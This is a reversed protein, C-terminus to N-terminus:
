RRRTRSSPRRGPHFSRASPQPRPCRPLRDGTASDVILIAGGGAPERMWSSPSRKTTRKRGRREIGIDAGVLQRVLEEELHETDIVLEHGLCGTLAHQLNKRGRGILEEGSDAPDTDGEFPIWLAFNISEHHMLIAIMSRRLQIGRLKRRLRHVRHQTQDGVLADRDDVVGVLIEVLDLPPKPLLCIAQFCSTM